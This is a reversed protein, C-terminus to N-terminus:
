VIKEKVIVKQAFNVEPNWAMHIYGRDYVDISSITAADLLAYIYSYAENLKTNEDCNKLEIEIFEKKGHPLMVTDFVIEFEGKIEPMVKSIPMRYIVREKKFTTISNYGVQALIKILAQADEVKTEIEDRSITKGTEDINRYKYTVTNGKNTERIRLTHLADKFELAGKVMMPETKPGILYHETQQIVGCYTSNKEIWKEFVQANKNVTHTFKIEIEKDKISAEQAQISIFLSMLLFLLRNKM